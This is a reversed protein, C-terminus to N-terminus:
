TEQEGFKERSPELSRGSSQDSREVRAKGRHIQHKEGAVLERAEWYLGALSGEPQELGRGGAGAGKLDLARRALFPPVFM